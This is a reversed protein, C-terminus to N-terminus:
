HSDAANFLYTKLRRRRFSVISMIEKKNLAPMLRMRCDVRYTSCSLFSSNWREDEGQHVYLHNSSTSRLKRPHRAQTLLSNLCTPQTSSLVQYVVTCVKFIVRYHVPLWHLSKLLASLSLFVPSCNNDLM